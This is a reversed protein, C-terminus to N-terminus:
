NWIWFCFFTTSTSVFCMFHYNWHFCVFFFSFCCIDAFTIFINNLYCYCKKSQCYYCLLYSICIFNFIFRIQISSLFFMFLNYWYITQTFFYTQNSELICQMGKANRGRPVLNHLGSHNRSIINTEGSENPSILDWIFNKIKEDGRYVQLCYLLQLLLCKKLM